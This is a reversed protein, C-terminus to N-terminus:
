AAHIARLIYDSTGVGTEANLITGFLLTASVSVVVLAIKPRSPKAPHQRWYTRGSGSLTDAIDYHFNRLPHGEPYM